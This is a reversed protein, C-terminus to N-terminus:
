APKKVDPNDEIIDIKYRALSSGRDVDLKHTLVVAFFTDFITTSVAVTKGNVDDLLHERNTKISTEYSFSRLGQRLHIQFSGDESDWQEYIAQKPAYDSLGELNMILNGLKIKGKDM